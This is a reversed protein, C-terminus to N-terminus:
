QDQELPGYHSFQTISHSGHYNTVKIPSMDQSQLSKSTKRLACFMDQPHSSSQVSHKFNQHTGFFHKTSPSGSESIALRSAENTLRRIKLLLKWQKNHFGENVLSLSLIRM